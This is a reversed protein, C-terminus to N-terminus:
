PTGVPSADAPPVDAETFVRDIVEEIAPNELTLDLLQGRLDQVLRATRDPADERPVRLTVINEERDIAEGYAGLADVQTTDRLTVRILKYPAM